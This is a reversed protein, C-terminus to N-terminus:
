NIRCDILLQNIAADEKKRIALDKLESYFFPKYKELKKAVDPFVFSDDLGDLYYEILNFRRDYCLFLEHSLEGSVLDYIIQPYEGDIIEIYKRMESVSMSEDMDKYLNGINDIYELRKENEDIYEQNCIDSIWVKINYRFCSVLYFKLKKPSGDFMRELKVYVWGYKDKAFSDLTTAKSKFNYRFCDYNSTFHLKISKFLCFALYGEPANGM